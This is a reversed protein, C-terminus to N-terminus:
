TNKQTMNSRLWTKIRRLASFSQEAECSSAPSELVSHLLTEMQHFLARVEPVISKFHIRCQDISNYKDSYQNRFFELENKLSPDLEPYQACTEEDYGEGLLM